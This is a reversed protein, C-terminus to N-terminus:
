SLEVNVQPLPQLPVGTSCLFCYFPHLPSILCVQLFYPTYLSRLRRERRSKVAMTRRGMDGEVMFRLTM